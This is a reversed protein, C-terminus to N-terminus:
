WTAYIAFSTASFLYHKVAHKESVYDSVPKIAKILHEWYWDHHKKLEYLVDSRFKADSSINYESIPKVGPAALIEHLERTRPKGDCLEKLMSIPLFLRGRGKTALCANGDVSVFNVTYLSCLIRVSILAEKGFDRFQLTASPLEPLTEGRIKEPLYNGVLSLQPSPEDWLKKSTGGEELKVRKSPQPDEDEKSKASGNQEM